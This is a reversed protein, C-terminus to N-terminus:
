FIYTCSITMNRNRIDILKDSTKLDRIGWDYGAAVQIHQRFEVGFKVGAGWDIRKYLDDDFVNKSFTQVVDNQMPKENKVKVQGWLGVGIYPGASAFFSFRDNIVLKYGIHIPIDLYYLDGKWQLNEHSKEDFYWSSKYGKSTIFAGLDFFMGKICSLQIESKVGLHFGTRYKQQTQTSFNIGGTLGWKTTQAHVAVSFNLLVFTIFMVKKMMAKKGM